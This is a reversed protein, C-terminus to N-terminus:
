RKREAGTRELYGDDLVVLRNDFALTGEDTNPTAQMAPMWQSGFDDSYTATV